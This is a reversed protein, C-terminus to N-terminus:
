SSTNQWLAKGMVCPHNVYVHVELSEGAILDSRVLSTKIAVAYYALRAEKGMQPQMANGNFLMGTFRLLHFSSHEM